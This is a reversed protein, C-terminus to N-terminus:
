CGSGKGKCEKRGPDEPRVFAQLNRTDPNTSFALPIKVSQGHVAVHHRSAVHIRTSEVNGDALVGVRDLETIVPFHDALQPVLDVNEVDTSGIMGM